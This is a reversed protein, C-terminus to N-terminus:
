ATSTSSPGPPGPPAAVVAPHDRGVSPAHTAAHAAALPLTLVVTTGQGEVTDLTITGNHRTVIKHCLALGLGTGGSDGGQDAVHLRQFLVFARPTDAPNMGLGNDAVRVTTFGDPADTTEATITIRPRRAPHRYKVANEILNQFLRVMQNPEAWVEPLPGYDVDAGTDNLLAGLNAEAHAVTGHLDVVAHGSELRGVRSYELLGEIMANLRRAGDVAEQIFSLSEGDLSGAARRQVLGLFGIVMRLPQRMDHSAAYAFQELEANSAKLQRREDELANRLFQLEAVKDQAERATILMHGALPRLLLILIAVALALLAAVALGARSVATNVEHYLADTPTTVLVQWGAEPVPHRSMSWGDHRSPPVAVALGGTAGDGTLWVTMGDPGAGPMLTGVYTTTTTGTAAILPALGSADFLVVDAGQRAGDPTAIAAAAAIRFTDDVAFPGHMVPEDPGVSALAALVEAPVAEGVAVLPRGDPGLRTIGVMAPSQALADALKDTTFARLDDLSRDGRNFAELDLRIATRSTVQRTMGIMGQAHGAIALTRAAGLGKLREDAAARLAGGLPLIIAVAVVVGTLLVALVSFWLIRRQIVPILITSM